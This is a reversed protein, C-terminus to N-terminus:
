AVPETSSDGPQDPRLRAMFGSASPTGPHATDLTRQDRLLSGYVALDRAMMALREAIRPSAIPGSSGVEQPTAGVGYPLSWGYCQRIATRVHDQVTLGKENSSVVVAILKGGLERWLHDLLNKLLGSPAGHYDPTGLIFVDAWAATRRLSRVAATPEADEGAFLPVPDQRLDLLRTEVGRQALHSVVEDVMRGTTSDSSPSAIVALVRLAQEPTPHDVM